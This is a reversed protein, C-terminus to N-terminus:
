DAVPADAGETVPAAPPAPQAQVPVSAGTMHELLSLAGGFHTDSEFEAFIFSAQQKTVVRMMPKAGKQIKAIDQFPISVGFGKSDFAGGDDVIYMAIISTTVFLRGRMPFSKEPTANNLYCRYKQLLTCRYHDVVEDDPSHDPFLEHFKSHVNVTDDVDNAGAKKDPALMDDLFSNLNGWGRGIEEAAKGITEQAAKSAHGLEATAVNALNAATAGLEDASINIDASPPNGSETPETPNSSDSKLAEPDVSDPSAFLNGIGMNDTVSKVDFGWASFVTGTDGSEPATASAPPPNASTDSPKIEPNPEASTTTPAPPDSVPGAMTPSLPSPSLTPPSPLILLTLSLLQSSIFYFLSSPPLNPHQLSSASFAQHLLLLTRVRVLQADLM